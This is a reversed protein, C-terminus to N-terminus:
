GYWMTYTAHGVVYDVIEDGVVQNLKPTFKLDTLAYEINGHEDRMVNSLAADKEDRSKDAIFATLHRGIHRFTQELEGATEAVGHIQIKSIAMNAEKREPKHGPGSKHDPHYPAWELSTARVSALSM